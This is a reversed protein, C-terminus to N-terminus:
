FEEIISLLYVGPLHFGQLCESCEVIPQLSGGCEACSITTQDEEEDLSQDDSFFM